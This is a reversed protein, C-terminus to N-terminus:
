QATPIRELRVVKEWSVSNTGGACGMGAKRGRSKRLVAVYCWVLDAQETLNSNHCAIRVFSLGKVGLGQYM